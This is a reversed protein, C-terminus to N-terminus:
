EVVIKNATERNIFYFYITLFHIQKLSSFLAKKNYDSTHM